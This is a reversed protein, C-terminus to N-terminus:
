AKLENWIREVDIQQMCWAGSEKWKCHHKGHGYRSRCCPVGASIAVHPPPFAYNEQTSGYLAIVKPCNAAVALYTLGTDNGVVAQCQKLIGRLATLPKQILLQANSGSATQIRKAVETETHGAIILAHGGTASKWRNAIEAFASESLRKTAWASGVILGLLPKIAGTEALIESAARVDDATVTVFLSPTSKINVGIARLLNLRRQVHDPELALEGSTCHTFARSDGWGHYGVRVPAHLRSCLLRSRLSPHACLVLDYSTQNLQRTLALMATFSSDRGNKDYVILNHILEHDRLVAEGRPAVLLDVACQPWQQKVAAVLATSFVADGIWATDIILCHTTDIEMAQADM